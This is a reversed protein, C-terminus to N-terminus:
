QMLTTVYLECCSLHHVWYDFECINFSLESCCHPLPSLHKGPDDCEILELGESSIVINNEKFKRVVAAWQESCLQSILKCQDPCVTVPPQYHTINGSPPFYYHCLIRRVPDYCENLGQLLFPGYDAMGQILRSYRGRSRNSPVFVYDVGAEYLDDCPTPSIIPYFPVRTGYRKLSKFLLRKM